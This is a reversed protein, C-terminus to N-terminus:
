PISVEEYGGGTVKTIAALVAPIKLQMKPWSTTLLVVIGLRRGKLNQQYRLNQDTTVLVEYGAEEALRLLDGNTITSWQREAVTDVAHSQLHRRLPVPTGQDFLVRM